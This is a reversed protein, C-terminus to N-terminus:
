GQAAQTRDLSPQVYPDSAFELPFLSIMRSLTSLTSCISRSILVMSTLATDSIHLDNSMHDSSVPESIAEQEGQSEQWDMALMAGSNSKRVDYEPDAAAAVFRVFCCRNDRFHQEPNWACKSSRTLEGIAANRHM